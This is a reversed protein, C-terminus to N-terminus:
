VNKTNKSQKIGCNDNRTEEAQLLPYAALSCPSSSSFQTKNDTKGQSACVIECKIAKRRAKLQASLVISRSQGLNSKDWIQDQM